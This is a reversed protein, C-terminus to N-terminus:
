PAPNSVDPVCRASRRMSKGLTREHSPNREKANEFLETAFSQMAAGASQPGYPPPEERQIWEVFRRGATNPGTQIAAIAARLKPDIRPLTM